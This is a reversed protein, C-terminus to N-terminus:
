PWEIGLVTSSLIGNREELEAVLGRSVELEAALRDREAMLAIVQAHLADLSPSGSGCLGCETVVKMDTYEPM